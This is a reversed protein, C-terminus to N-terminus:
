FSKEELCFCVFFFLFSDIKPYKSIRLLFYFEHWGVGLYLTIKDNQCIDKQTCVKVIIKVFAFDYKIMKFEVNM